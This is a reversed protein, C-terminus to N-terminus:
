LTLVCCFLKSAKGPLEFISNENYMSELPHIHHRPTTNNFCSGRSMRFDFKFTELAGFVGILPSLTLVYCFLKSAEGPLEFILKKSGLLWSTSNVDDSYM